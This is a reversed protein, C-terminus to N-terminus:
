LENEFWEDLEKKTKIKSIRGEELDDIGQQMSEVESKNALIELTEKWCEMEYTMKEVVRLLETSIQPTVYIEDQKGISYMQTEM